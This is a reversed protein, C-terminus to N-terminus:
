EERLKLGVSALAENIATITKAGVNKIELLDAESERVLQYLYLIGDDGLQSVIKTALPLGAVAESLLGEAGEASGSPEAYLKKILAANPELFCEECRDNYVALGPRIRCVFCLGNNVPKLM